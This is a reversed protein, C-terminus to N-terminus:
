YKEPRALRLKAHCETLKSVSSPYIKKYDAPMHICTLNRHKHVTSLTQIREEIIHRAIGTRRLYSHSCLIRIGENAASQVTRTVRFSISQAGSPLGKMPANLVNAVSIPFFVMALTKISAQNYSYLRQDFPLQTDEHWLWHIKSGFSLVLKIVSYFSYLPGFLFNKTQWSVFLSSIQFGIASVFSLPQKLFLMKLQLLNAQAFSNWSKFM